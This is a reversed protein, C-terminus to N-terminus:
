SCGGRVEAHCAAVGYATLGKSVCIGGGTMSADSATVKGHVGARFNIQALPLLCLFRFLERRVGFPLPLRVVPPYGKLVEMFHWVQNLASLLPRRFMAIYVLGGAVIQVEKLTVGESRLLELGLQLYQWLKQPKPVAVGEKGLVLAGQVEASFSREVAKKPHRPLGWHEYAQRLALVQASPKGSILCALEKDVKELADFNDLYVRHLVDGKPFTKDRRLEHEGPFAVQGGLRVNAVINRHVHQAVSVSNCYGMPLVRSVLVCKQNGYQPPVLDAPVEKNFGFFKKWSDPVSFLYFFCKIDESSTLLFEGEELLIGSMGSVLPLTSVDGKIQKTISNAPILNMILRQTELQDVYEGKGVSFLGNTLPVGKIHHLQSVPVVECIGKSVLGKCVLPWEENDVMVSPAKVPHQSELPLIYEDINRVYHLTGLKCYNELPLAGVSDPLSNEIAAWKMKLAVKVEEGSYDVNKNNFFNKFSVDSGVEDWMSFRALQKVVSLRLPDEKPSNREDALDHLAWLAPAVWGEYPADRPTVTTSTLSPFRKFWNSEEVMSPSKCRQVLHVHEGLFHGMDAFSVGEFTTAVSGEGASLQPSVFVEPRVGSSVGILMDEQASVVAAGGVSAEFPAAEKQTAENGDQLRKREAWEVKRKKVEKESGCHDEPTDKSAKRLGKERRWPKAKRQRKRGQEERKQPRRQFEQQRRKRASITGVAKGHAQVGEAISKSRRSGTEGGGLGGVVLHDNHSRISSIGDKYGRQFASWSSPERPKQAETSGLRLERGGKWPNHQGAGHEPDSIGTAYTGVDSSSPMAPFVQHSDGATTRERVGGDRGQVSFSTGDWSGGLSRSSSWPVRGGSRAGLHRGPVVEDEAKNWGRGRDQRPLPQLKSISFEQKGEEEERAEEVEEKSSSPVKEKSRTKPGNRHQQFHGGVEKSAGCSIEPESEEIREVSRKRKEKEPVSKEERERQKTEERKSEGRSRKGREETKRIRGERSRGCRQGRGLQQGVAGLSWEIGEM